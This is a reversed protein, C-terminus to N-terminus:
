PVRDKDIITTLPDCVQNLIDDIEADDNLAEILEESRVQDEYNVGTIEGSFLDHEM